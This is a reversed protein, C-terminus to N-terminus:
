PRMGGRVRAGRKGRALLALGAYMFAANYLILEFGIAYGVSPAWLSLGWALLPSAIALALISWNFDFSTRPRVLAFAFMGLLPGYTYGAATFLTDIVSKSDLARLALLALFVVALVGAYTIYRRRPGEDPRIQLFDVCFATTLATLASDASSFAAALLGIFFVSQLLMSFTPQTIVQVFLYEGGEISLGHALAYRNLFIGLALFVLNVWLLNLGLLVVNKQSHRLEPVTLNKQMMDQDLGTMAVAIALGGLM